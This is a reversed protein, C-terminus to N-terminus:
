LYFWLCVVYETLACDSAYIITFAYMCYILFFWLHLLMYLYMDHSHVPFSYKDKLQTGGVAHLGEV